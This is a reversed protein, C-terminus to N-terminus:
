RRPTLMTVKGSFSPAFFIHIDFIEPNIVQLIALYSLSFKELFLSGISYSRTRKTVSPIKFDLM